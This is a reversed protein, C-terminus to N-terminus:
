ILKGEFAKKLISQRLAEAQKLSNTITEEIKDCVSLRSEIEQVIQQQEELPPIPITIQRIKEQGINRMSDQNGTSLSEIEKRGKRSRLYHLAYDKSLEDSFTFRLIKDSLMLRKSISKVIVCAGILEITNARSFLFDGQKILYDENLLDNSFCTKSEEEDFFGWTVSSVKVIGVQYDKPPREECRFSKGSGIHSIYEGLATNKWGKPM